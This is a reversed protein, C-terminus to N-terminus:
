HARPTPNDTALIVFPTVAGTVGPTLFASLDRTYTEWLGDAQFTSMGDSGNVGDLADVTTEPGRIVTANIGMQDNTFFAQGDAIVFSTTAHADTSSSPAAAYSGMALNVNHNAFSNAGEFIVVTNYDYAPNTFIVV